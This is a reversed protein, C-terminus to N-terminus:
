FVERLEDPQEEGEPIGYLQVGFGEPPIEVLMHVHDPYVEAEVIRIKKWNCLTRM